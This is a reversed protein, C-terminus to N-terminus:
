LDGGQPGKDTITAIVYSIVFLLLLIFPATM